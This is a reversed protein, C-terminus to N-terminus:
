AGVEPGVGDDTAVTDNGPINPVRWVAFATAFACLVPGWTQVIENDPLTTLLATAVAGVVAVIAKLYNLVNSM